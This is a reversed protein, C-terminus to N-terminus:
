GNTCPLPVADGRAFRLGNVSCESCHDDVRPIVQSRKFQLPHFQEYFLDAPDQRLSLYDLLFDNVAHAASIANLSIVSPNPEEVGYAQAKRDADSKAEKALDTPDILQNCWLCGRSPRLPRNVSFVDALTGDANPRIKSGLQVAPILYQHVLANCVLRARMSDAAIFLYDCGVLQRAVSEKAVDDPIEHVLATANGERIVRAAVNIKLTHSRADSETAGVIRSLNSAEVRDPDVLVFEGVGMRALYEVVLSGIGGVGVVGVRCKSLRLQGAAGFMRIQRDHHSLAIRKASDPHATWREIRSGVVSADELRMRSGDTLWVDAEVSRKGFVLAGVPVGRAIQLLAPYGREHSEMDIQSFGVNLDSDHNHVALYALGEDRARTIMRHIFRPALARYGHTGEVYGDGFVAPHIERVLLTLGDPRKSIGALLVAGHEDRDGPFLHAMLEDLHRRGIRIRVTNV